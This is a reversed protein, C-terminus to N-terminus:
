LALLELSLGLKALMEGIEPKYVRNMVIVTTPKISQLDAPGVIPHGSGIMFKGQRNPNIDVVHGIADRNDLASLFSVGKSGSGWIVVRGGKAVRDAVIGRWEAIKKTFATKFGEVQGKLREVEGQLGADTRHGVHHGLIALYQGDYERSVGDIAFGHRAFLGKLSAETFYNVHEYYVDEFACDTLIRESEPIQIFIKMGPTSQKALQEVVGAFRDAAPIHELTMKTLLSDVKMDKISADSFFDGILRVGGVREEVQDERRVDLCPDFGTGAAGTMKCILHLFEGQGCGVEVTSKGKLALGEVIREALGKHFKLFTPSYAQTPEYRESYECLMPDFAANYIFGCGVCFVLKIDGRAYAVAEAKSDLMLCSNTPVNKVELVPSLAHSGCAPCAGKDSVHLSNPNHVAAAPNM